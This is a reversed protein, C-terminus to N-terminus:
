RICPKKKRRCHIAAKSLQIKIAHWVVTRISKLGVIACSNVCPFIGYFLRQPHGCLSKKNKTCLFVQRDEMRSNIIEMQKFLTRIQEGHKEHIGTAHQQWEAIKDLKRSMETTTVILQDIKSDDQHPDDKSYRGINYFFSIAAAALAGSAILISSDM